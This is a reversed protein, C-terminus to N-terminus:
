GLRRATLAESPGDSQRCYMPPLKYFISAIDNLLALIDM